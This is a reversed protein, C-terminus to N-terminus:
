RPYYGRTGPARRAALSGAVCAVIAAILTVYAGAEATPSVAKVMEMTAGADRADRVTWILYAPHVVSIGAGIGALVSFFVGGRNAGRVQIGIVFLLSALVAVSVVGISLYAEYGKYKEGSYDSDPPTVSGWPMLASFSSLVMLVLAL